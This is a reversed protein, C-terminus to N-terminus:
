NNTKESGTHNLVHRTPAPLPRCILTCKKTGKYTVQTKRKELVVPLVTERKLLGDEGSERTGRRKAAHHHPAYGPPFGDAAAGRGEEVHAVGGGHDEGPDAILHEDGGPLVCGRGPTCSGYAM